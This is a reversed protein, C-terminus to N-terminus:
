RQEQDTLRKLSYKGAIDLYIVARDNPIRVFTIPGGNIGKIRLMVDSLLEISGNNAGDKVKGKDTVEVVRKADTALETLRYRAVYNAGLASWTLDSYTKGTIKEIENTKKKIAKQVDIAMLLEIYAASQRAYLNYVEGVLSNVASASDVPESYKTEVRVYTGDPQKVLQLSDSSQIVQAACGAGIFVLLFFLFLIKM